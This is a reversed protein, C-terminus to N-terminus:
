YSADFLFSLLRVRVWPLEENGADDLTVGVADEVVDEDSSSSLARKARLPGAPALM